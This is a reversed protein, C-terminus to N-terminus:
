TPIVAIVLLLSILRCLYFAIVAYKVDVLYSSCNSFGFLLLQVYNYMLLSGEM